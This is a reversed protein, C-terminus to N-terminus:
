LVNSSGGAMKGPGSDKQGYPVTTRWNDLATEALARTESNWINYFREKHEYAALLLPFAGTWTDMIIQELGTIEHSRKLLIKRDGKLARIQKASLEKRLSKRVNGLADNAM